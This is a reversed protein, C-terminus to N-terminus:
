HDHLFGTAILQQLVNNILQPDTATRDALTSLLQSKNTPLNSNELLLLDIIEAEIPNAYSTFLSKDEVVISNQVQFLTYLNGVNFPASQLNILRKVVWKHSSSLQNNSINYATATGINILDKQTLPNPTTSTSLLRTLDDDKLAFLQTLGYDQIILELTHDDVKSTEVAPREDALSWLLTFSGSNDYNYLWQELTSGIKNTPWLISVLLSSAAGNNSLIDLQLETHPDLTAEGNSILSPVIIQSQGATLMFEGDYMFRVKNSIHDPNLNVEETFTDAQFTSAKLNAPISDAKTLLLTSFMILILISKCITLPM